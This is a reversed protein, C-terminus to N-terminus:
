KSKCAADNVRWKESARQICASWEFGQSPFTYDCNRTDAMYQAWALNECHQRAASKGNPLPMRLPPKAREEICAQFIERASANCAALDEQAEITWDMPGDNRYKEDVRKACAAYNSELENTCKISLEKKDAAINSANVYFRGIQKGLYDFAPYLLSLPGLVRAGLPGAGPVPRAVSVKPQFFPDPAAGPAVAAATGPAVAAATTTPPLFTNKVAIQTGNEDYRRATLLTSGYLQLYSSATLLDGDPYYEFAYRVPRSGLSSGIGKVHDLDGWTFTTTWGHETLASFLCAGGAPWTVTVRSSVGYAGAAYWGPRGYQDYGGFQVLDLGNREVRLINGTEPDRVIRNGNAAADVDEALSTNDICKGPNGYQWESYGAKCTAVPWVGLADSYSNPSCASNYTCINSVLAYPCVWGDNVGAFCSGCAAFKAQCAIPGNTMGPVSINGSAIRLAAAADPTSACYGTGACYSNHTAPQAPPSATCQQAQSATSALALVAALVIVTKM